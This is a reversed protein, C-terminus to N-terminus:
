VSVGKIGEERCYEDIIIRIKYKSLKPHKM